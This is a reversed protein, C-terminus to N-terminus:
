TAGVFKSTSLTATFPFKLLQFLFIFNFFIFLFMHPALTLYLIFNFLHIYYNNSLLIKIIKSILNFYFM